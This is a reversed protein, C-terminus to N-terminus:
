GREKASQIGDVEPVSYLGAAAVVGREARIQTLLGTIAGHHISGACIEELVRRIEIGSQVNFLSRIGGDVSSSARAVALFTESHPTAVLDRRPFSLPPDVISSLTAM